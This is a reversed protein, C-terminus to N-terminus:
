RTEVVAVDIFLEVFGSDTGESMKMSNIRAAFRKVSTLRNLERVIKRPLVGVKREQHGVKIWHGNVGMEEVQGTRYITVRRFEGALMEKRSLVTGNTDHPSCVVETAELVIDKVENPWPQDFKLIGPTSEVISDLKPDIRYDYSEEPRQWDVLADIAQKVLVDKEAAAKREQFRLKRRCSPCRYLMSSPPRSFKLNSQCGPCSFKKGLYSSGSETM